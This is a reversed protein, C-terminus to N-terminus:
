PKGKTASLLLSVELFLTFLYFVMLWVFFAKSFTEPFGARLALGAGLVVALRVGTGGLLAVLQQEPSAAATKSFWLFTVVTPVLCLAM